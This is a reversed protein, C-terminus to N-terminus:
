TVDCTAVLSSPIRARTLTLTWAGCRCIDFSLLAGYANRNKKRYCYCSSCSGTTKAQTDTIDPSSSRAPNLQSTAAAAM